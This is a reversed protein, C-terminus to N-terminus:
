VLGNVRTAPVRIEALADAIKNAYYRYGAATAHIGDHVSVLQAQQSNTPTGQTGSHTDDAPGMGTWWPDDPGFANIYHARPCEAIARAQGQRHIDSKDGARPPGIIGTGTAGNFLGDNFPEPSVHAFTCYPDITHIAQYCEKARTYMQSETVGGGSADNWTGNLVYLLPRKGLPQGFDEGDHAVFAPRPASSTTSNLVVNESVQVAAANTMWALRSASLYRSNGGQSVNGVGWIYM